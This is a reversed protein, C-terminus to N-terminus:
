LTGQEIGGVLAMLALLLLLGVLAAVCEGRKTLRVRSKPYPEFRGDDGRADYWPRSM